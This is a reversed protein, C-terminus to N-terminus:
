RHCWGAVLTPLCVMADRERVADHLRTQLTDIHVEDATAIGARIMVPLLSRSVGALMAPGTPDGPELYRQLGVVQPDTAGGSRLIEALRPGALQAQGVVAFAREVRDIAEDLLPVSPHSRTGSMDYELCLLLGGPRLCDLWHRVVGVPDGQYPLVLRAVVADVPESPAYSAVDGETYTIPAGDHRVSGAWALADPSADVATVMGDPGVLEAAIRAVQGTGTGMDLVRMGRHLGALRLAQRTIGALAEGQRDLRELEQTNHGLAYDPRTTVNSM